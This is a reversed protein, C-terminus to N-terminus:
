PRGKCPFHESLARQLVAGAPQSLSEPHAGLWEVLRGPAVLKDRPTLCFAPKGKGYHHAADIYGNLYSHCMVSLTKVRDADKCMRLIVSGDNGHADGAHAPVASFLGLSVPLIASLFRFRSRASYMAPLCETAFSYLTV